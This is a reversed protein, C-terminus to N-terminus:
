RTISKPNWTGSAASIGFSKTLLYVWTINKKVTNIIGTAINNITIKTHNKEM